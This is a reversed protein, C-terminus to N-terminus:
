CMERGGEVGFIFLAEHGKQKQSRRGSLICHPNYTKWIGDPVIAKPVKKKDFVYGIIREYLDGEHM